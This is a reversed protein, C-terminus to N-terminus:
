KQTQIARASDFGAWFQNSENMAHARQWRYLTAHSIGGERCAALVGIEGARKLVQVRFDPTYTRWTRVPRVAQLWKFSERVLESAEPLQSFKLLGLLCRKLGANELKLHGVQTLARQRELTKKGLGRM